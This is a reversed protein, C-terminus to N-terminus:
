CQARSYGGNQVSARDDALPEFGRGLQTIHVAALGISTFEIDGHAGLNVGQRGANIRLVASVCRAVAPYRRPHRCGPEPRAGAPRVERHRAALWRWPRAAHWGPVGSAAPLDDRIALRV